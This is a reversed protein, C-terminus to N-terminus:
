ITPKGHEISTLDAGCNPCFNPFSTWSGRSDATTTIREGCQPCRFTFRSIAIAAVILLWSFFNIALFAPAHTTQHLVASGFFIGFGAITLWMVQLKRRRFHEHASLM